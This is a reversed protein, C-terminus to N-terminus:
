KRVDQIIRTLRNRYVAGAAAVALGLAAYSAPAGLESMVDPLHGPFSIIDTMAWVAPILAMIATLLIQV